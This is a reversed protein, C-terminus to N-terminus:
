NLFFTMIVKAGHKTFELKDTLNLMIYLGKSAAQMCRQPITPDPINKFDFGNGEDEITVIAKHTIKTATLKVEKLGNQKNGYLIANTVAEITSLTIRGRLKEQLQFESIFYEIFGEVKTINNLDSLVSLEFKNM